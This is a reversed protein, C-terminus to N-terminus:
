VMGGVIFAEDIDADNMSALTCITLTLDSDRKFVESFAWDIQLQKGEFTNDRKIFRDIEGLQYVALLGQRFQRITLTEPVSRVDLGAEQETILVFSPQQLENPSYYSHGTSVQRYFPM